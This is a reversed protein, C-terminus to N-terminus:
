LSVGQRRLREILPNGPKASAPPHYNDSEPIEVDGVLCLLYPRVDRDTWCVRAEASAKAAQEGTLGDLVLVTGANTELTRLRM